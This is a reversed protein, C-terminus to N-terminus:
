GTEAIVVMDDAEMVIVFLLPSLESGQHMGVRVEFSTSNDYVTRVVAKAGTYMSMVASVLREDDGLKSMACRIVKRPDRDFAKELDVFGLYLKKGKARFKEQSAICVMSVSISTTSSIFAIYDLDQICEV